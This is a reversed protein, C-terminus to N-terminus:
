HSPLPFPDSSYRQDFMMRRTHARSYPWGLLQKLQKWSLYLPLKVKTM